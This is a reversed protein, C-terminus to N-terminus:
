TDSALTIEPLNAGVHGTGAPEKGEAEQNIPGQTVASLVNKEQHTM